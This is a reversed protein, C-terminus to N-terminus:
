RSQGPRGASGIAHRRALAQGVLVATRTAERTIQQWTVRVVVIGHALLWADKRRDSEFRHRTSHHRFGDVEVAVGEDRWLFDLEYAGVGVNTAPQPLGAQRILALFRSEAESRTFAAGAPGGLIARLAAVGPRRPHRDLLARLRGADILGEREARAVAGELERSGLVVALDVLTRGPATVPIGYRASCEDAALAGVRHVQIGRHRGRNAGAMTVHVPERGSDRRDAVAVQVTAASSGPAALGWLALANAHSVVVHVGARGAGAALAAAMERTWTLPTLGVLYVGRHLRRLRGGGVRRSVASSSLGAALLQHLTVVGHQRSAVAAIREELERKM